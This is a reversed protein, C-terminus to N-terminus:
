GSLEGDVDDIWERHAAVLRRSRLRVV